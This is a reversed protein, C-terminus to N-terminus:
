LMRKDYVTMGQVVHEKEALNVPWKQGLKYLHTLQWSHSSPPKHLVVHLARLRRTLGARCMAPRPQTAGNM